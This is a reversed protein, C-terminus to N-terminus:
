PAYPVPQSWTLPGLSAEAGRACPACMRRQQGCCALGCYFWGTCTAVPVYLFLHHPQTAATASSPTRKMSQMCMTCAAAKSESGAQVRLVSGNLAPHHSSRALPLNITVDTDCSSFRSPCKINFPM